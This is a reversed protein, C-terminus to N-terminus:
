PFLRRSTLTMTSVKHIALTTTQGRLPPSYEDTYVQWPDRQPSVDVNLTKWRTCTGIRVRVHAIMKRAQTALTSAKTVILTQPASERSTRFSRPVPNVPHMHKREMKEGVKVSLGVSVM